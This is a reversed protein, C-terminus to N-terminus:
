AGPSQFRGSLPGVELAAPDTLRAREAHGAAVYRKLIEVLSEGPWRQGALPVRLHGSRRDVRLVTDSDVLRVDTVDDWGAWKARRAVRTYRVGIPDLHLRGRGLLTGGALLVAAVALPPSFLFIMVEPDGRYSGGVRDAQMDAISFAGLGVALAACALALALGHTWRRPLLVAGRHTRASATRDPRVWQSWALLLVGSALAAGGLRFSTAEGFIAAALGGVVPFAGGLVLMVKVWRDSSDGTRM